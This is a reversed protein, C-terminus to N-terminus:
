EPTLPTDPPMVFVVFVVGSYFEFVWMGFGSPLDAVSRYTFKTHTGLQVPDPARSKQLASRIADYGDSYYRGVDFEAASTLRQGTLAFTLGAIVLAFWPTFPDDDLSAGMGFGLAEGSKGLLHEPRARSLLKALQRSKGKQLSRAIKGLMLKQATAHNGGFHDVAFLERVRLDLKSKANNCDICAWVIVPEWNPANEAEFSRPIVHEKSLDSTSGCYACERPLASLDNM